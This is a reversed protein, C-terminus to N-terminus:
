QHNLRKEKMDQVLEEAHFRASPPFVAPLGSFLYINELPVLRTFIFYGPRLRVLGKEGLNTTCTFKENDLLNVLTVITDEASSVEFVGEVSDKWRILIKIEEELLDQNRRIFRDILSESNKFTYCHIFWDVGNLLDSNSPNGNNRLRYSFILPRYKKENKYYFRVLRQKLRGATEILRKTEGSLEM